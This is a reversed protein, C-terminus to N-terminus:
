EGPELRTLGPIRDFERDFTYIESNCFTQSLVAHYCDAFSLKPIVAYLALTAALYEREDNLFRIGPAMALIELSQVIQERGWQKLGELVYVVEFIATMSLLGAFEGVAMEYFLRASRPSHDAHDNTLYRLLINTDIFRTQSV